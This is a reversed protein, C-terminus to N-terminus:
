TQSHNSSPKFFRTRPSEVVTDDPIARTVCAGASIRVRNGVIVPGLIGSHPELVVDNGVLPVGPWSAVKEHRGVEGGIGACAMVTLNRGITGMLATGTPHLIVLGAGIEAPESVDAGTLLCNLHWVARSLWTHRACYLYHSLRFLGVCLFSASFWAPGGTYPTRLLREQRLRALDVRLTACVDSWPHRAPTDPQLNM